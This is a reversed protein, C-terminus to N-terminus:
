NIFIVVDGLIQRAAHHFDGGYSGEGQAAGRGLVEKCKGAFEGM